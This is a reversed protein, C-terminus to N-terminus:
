PSPILKGDPGRTYLQKPAVGKYFGIKQKAKPNAANLPPNGIVWRWKGDPGRIAYLPLPRIPPTPVVNKRLGPRNRGGGPLMEGRDNGPDPAPPMGPQFVYHQVSGDPATFDFTISGDQNFHVNPPKVFEPPVIIPAGPAPVTDQLGTPDSGDIPSSDVYQYLNADGATFGSPDQSAFTGTAPGYWRAHDFYQETLSDYQMGAFKFRDGNSANTETVITGFSDYVVHDLESGSSSVIDRVSGLKDTLYWATAGGSGTRALLEDVVAGDVVGTGDLYRTLLTSSGNFDAYPTADASTGNYVTWTRSGGEQVGIRQDLANYTYTAIVTSGQTVETVRNRYDYTFTTVTGGSNASITNGAKDYAYTVGSSTQTENMITTSYGTGTRNGNLDYSYSDVQTGNKDVNTLEDSNDYTYTYTGDSDVMTTVRDSKDYSYIYTALASGGSVYDTITTQRDAADYVYTTNVATGSGGITRSQSSIQNNPAYSTVVQPGATGGYSTTITTPREGADYVITTRGISSLNDTVSTLNQQADYGSTLTVSPQGTGPGSTASTIENGGSDYTFTLTAYSDAAGTLENDADYTYTITESPSSGVWTEGTQDGDADYSYTTRRGDADTTDTLENDYTYLYTSLAASDM